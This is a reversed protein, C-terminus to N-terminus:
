LKFVTGVFKKIEDPDSPKPQYGSKLTGNTMVFPKGSVPDNLGALDAPTVAAGSRRKSTAVISSLKAFDQGDFVFATATPQPLDQMYIMSQIMGGPNQVSALKSKLTAIYSASAMQDATIKTPDVGWEQAAHQRPADLSAVFSPWDKQAAEFCAMTAASVLKATELPNSVEPHGEFVQTVFKLALGNQGKVEVINAVVQKESRISNVTYLPNLVNNRFGFAIGTAVVQRMNTQARLAKIIRDLDADSLRKDAAMLAAVGLSRDRLVHLALVTQTGGGFTLARDSWEVAQVFADAAGTSDGEELMCRALTLEACIRQAADGAAEGVASNPKESTAFGKTEAEVKKLREVLEKRKAAGAPGVYPQNATAVGRMMARFADDSGEIPKQGLYTVFSDTYNKGLMPDVAAEMASVSVAPKRKKLAKPQPTETPACGVALLSLLIFSRRM